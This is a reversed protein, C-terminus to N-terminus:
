LLWPLVWRDKSQEFLFARLNLVHLFRLYLFVFLMTETTEHSMTVVQRNENSLRHCVPNIRRCKVFEFSWSCLSFCFFICGFRDFNPFRLHGYVFRFICKGLQFWWSDADNQTACRKPEASSVSVWSMQGVKDFHLLYRTLVSGPSRPFSESFIFIISFPSM